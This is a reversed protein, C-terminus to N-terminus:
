HTAAAAPRKTGARGTEHKTASARAQAIDWGGAPTAVTVADDPQPEAAFNQTALKAAALSTPDLRTAVDDRRAAADADGQAAALSFWKYSEVLNQEVGRSGHLYLVGLNYQSDAVGRDAAKRFWQAASEFNQSSGPAADLVALNYMAAANGHGAAQTYYRRAIDLDKKVGLGKEYLSGIKFAAPVVGAQAARDLWKAAEEFNAAVGRGELFRSGVEYAASPDGKMAAGRLVPGGVENPLREGPPVAITVAKAESPALSLARSITDNGAAEPEATAVTSQIKVTEVNNPVTPDTDSKSSSKVTAPTSAAAETRRQGIAYNYFYFGVVIVVVFVLVALIRLPLNSSEKADDLNERGASALSSARQKPRAEATQIVPIHSPAVDRREPQKLPAQPDDLHSEPATAARASSPRRGSQPRPTQSQNLQSGPATAVRAVSAPGGSTRRTTRPRASPTPALTASLGDSAAVFPNPLGFRLNSQEIADHEEPIEEFLEVPSSTGAPRQQAAYIEHLDDDITSEDFTDELPDYLADIADQEVPESGSPQRASVACLERLDDEITPVDSIHDVADDLASITDQEVPEAPQPQTAPAAYLERLDDDIAPEDVIDDVADDLADITDQEVPESPDAQRKQAAYIERLDDEITPKDSTHGVADHLTHINNQEARESPGASRQQAAPTARIERLDDEITLEDFLGVADHLADITDREISALENSNKPRRDPRAQGAGVNSLEDGAVDRKARKSLKPTRDNETPAASAVQEVELHRLVGRLGAVVQGDDHPDSSAEAREESYSEPRDLYVLAPAQDDVQPSDFGSSAAEIASRLHEASEDEVQPELSELAAALVAVHQDDPSLDLIPSDDDSFTTLLEERDSPRRLAEIHSTITILHRELLLFETGAIASSPSPAMIQAAPAALPM